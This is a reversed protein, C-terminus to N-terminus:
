AHHEGEVIDVLANQVDAVRVYFKRHNMEQNRLREMKRFSSQSMGKPQKLRLNFSFSCCWAQQLHKLQISPRSRSGAKKFDWDFNICFNTKKRVFNTDLTNVMRSLTGGSSNQIWRGCLEPKWSQKWFISGFSTRGFNESMENGGWCFDKIQKTIETNWIKKRHSYIRREGCRRGM